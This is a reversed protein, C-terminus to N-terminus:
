LNKKGEVEVGTLTDFRCIRYLIYLGCSSMPLPSPSQEVEVVVSWAGGCGGDGVLLFVGDRGRHADLASPVCM